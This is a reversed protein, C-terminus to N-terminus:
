MTSSTAAVAITWPQPENPVAVFSSEASADEGTFSADASAADISAAIGGDDDKAGDLSPSAALASADFSPPTAKVQGADLKRQSVKLRGGSWSPPPIQVFMWFM